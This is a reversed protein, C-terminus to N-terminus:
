GLSQRHISVYVVGAGMYLLPSVLFEVVPAVSARIGYPVPLIFYEVFAILLLYFILLLHILHWVYKLWAEDTKRLVVAGTMYVLTITVWRFFQRYQVFFSSISIVPHYFFLQVFTYATLVVVLGTWYNKPFRLENIM